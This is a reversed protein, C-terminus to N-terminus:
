VCLHNRKKWFFRRLGLTFEGLRRLLHFSLKDCRALLEDDFENEQIRVYLATLFELLNECLQLRLSPAMKQFVVDSVSQLTKKSFVKKAMYFLEDGQRLYRLSIRTFFEESSQLVNILCRLAQIELMISKCSGLAAYIRKDFHADELKRLFMCFHAQAESEEGKKIAANFIENYFTVQKLFYSELDSDTKVFEISYYMALDYPNIRHTKDVFYRMFDEILDQYGNGNSSKLWDSCFDKMHNLELFIGEPNLGAEDNYAVTAIATGEKSLLNSAGGTAAIKTTAQNPDGVYEFKANLQLRKEERLAMKRGLPNGTQIVKTIRKSLRALNVEKGDLGEGKEKALVFEEAHTFKFGYILFNMRLKLCADFLLPSDFFSYIDYIQQNTEILYRLFCASLFDQIQEMKGERDKSYFETLLHEKHVERCVELIAPDQRYRLDLYFEIISKQDQLQFRFNTPPPLFPKDFTPVSKYCTYLCYLLGGIQAGPYRDAVMVVAFLMNQLNNKIEGVIERVASLGHLHNQVLFAFIDVLILIIGDYSQYWVEGHAMM